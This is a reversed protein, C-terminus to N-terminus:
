VEVQFGRHLNVIFCRVKAKPLKLIKAVAMRYLELQPRYHKQLTEADKVSDKYDIVWAEDEGVALLDIAGQFIMEEDANEITEGEVYRAYTDRVPLSVLFTQEKYLRKDQLAGFIPNQLIQCLKEENLFQVWETKPNGAYNELRAQVWARLEGQSIREGASTYLASFDTDELFAHYALGTEVSTADQLEREPLDAVYEKELGAYPTQERSALLQSASSKVPLNEYGTHAYEWTFARQIAQVQAEDPKFAFVTREQKPESLLVDEVFYKEWVEFRTFDAFSNAYKVDAIPSRSKFITHLAYKARTLAVYYLNLEDMTSSEEQKLKCLLRLLTSSKTMTAGDFANPAIGYKEELFVEDTDGRFTASLDNVIVVPYELGKSSHMTLVKVSDEGSNESYLIEGDLSKLRSLFAHVSLPTDVNTEEIFRHIRHLCAESNDKSLLRAEMRTDTIIKTLLEGATYVASLTRVEDFYAYFARLQLALRDHKEEAYRKCATRFPIETSQSAPYALRVTTLDDVTLNGMSSLLASCLPIDQQANDILSLIDILTKIEGYECINVASATTIPIGENALATITETLEKGSKNRTLVAIDAYRVPRYSKSEIDYYTKRREEIIIDKILKASLSIARETQSGHEKVSYLKSACEERTANEEKGLFHVQVRGENLPYLGGREMVAERAYDVSCTDPTMSLVFQSNVADLVADSSRFNKRMILDNKGQLAFTKRKEVFFKSKSGRFGYISQKVDGVLFVNEGAVKSLIAEQVPSVDQYEDVFVQRYKQRIEAVIEENQLLQLATHELDNYDLVGRETKLDKFIGDFRLLATALASATQSALTFRTRESDEDKTKDLMDKFIGDYLNKKWAGLRDKHLLDTETMKKNARNQKLEPKPIQACEFYTKTQSIASLFALLSNCIALQTSCQPCNEFYIREEEIKDTYYAVKDLLLTHLDHCVAQFTDETYACSKELYARYDDRNMLKGYAKFLLERLQNDSKKRWYVSVLHEFYPEGTEYGEELFKEMAESKLTKGEADDSNIIRFANDIGLVYFHTRIFRACFSHITSIDASPVGDLQKKLRKREAPATDAHNITKILAKRLKEKMQSAAKKTFTVALVDSIDGGEKVFRIIKEIMVTTKGSGASASVITQGQAEIAQLQETTFTSPKM